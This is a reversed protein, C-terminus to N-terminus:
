KSGDKQSPPTTSKELEGAGATIQMPESFSVKNNLIQLEDFSWTSTEATEGTKNLIASGEIEVEAADGEATADQFSYVFSAKVKNKGITETWFKEFQLNKSEPLNKQVYETIIRKLDTQIGIHVSESVPKKLHAASWTLVLAVSFFLVSVIKM